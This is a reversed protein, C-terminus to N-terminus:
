GGDGGRGNNAFGEANGGPIAGEGPGGDLGEGPRPVFSSFESTLSDLMDQLDPSPPVVTPTPTPSPQPTPTPTPEPTPIPAQTTRTTTAPSTPTTTGFLGGPGFVGSNSLAIAVAVALAAFLVFVVLFWGACGAGGRRRPPRSTM